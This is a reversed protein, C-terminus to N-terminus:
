FDGRAVQFVELGLRRGHDVVQQRDDFLAILRYRKVLDRWLEEKVVFDPRLDGQPRMLLEDFPVNNNSLWERSITECVADRGSCVIISYGATKLALACQRVCDRIVDEGVRAWDYPNRGNVIEALTGDFDFVYAPPLGHDITLKPSTVPNRDYFKFFRHLIRNRAAQDRIVEEGVSKERKSDRQIATEVDIDIIQFSIHYNVFRKLFANILKGSLNTDDVITTKGRDLHGQILEYEMRTVEGERRNLDPHIYYSRDNHGWTMLRISDRSVIAADHHDKVYNRAWTSKGSGSIGSLLILRGLQPVHEKKTSTATKPKAQMQSNTAMPKIMNCILEHIPRNDKLAFLISKDPRDIIAQAFEKRTPFEKLAKFAETASDMAADFKTKLDTWTQRLWEHWEDPVNEVFESIDKGTKFWSWVGLTSLNTVIRHLSVYNEFKIKCRSGNSFRVVFGEANEWDLAKVDNYDLGDYIKVISFGCSKVADVEFSEEGSPLFSALYVLEERDGYNVVIRNEPYIIEFIYSKSTDLNETSYKDELMQQAKMAQDSAFSGRSAFRWAGAYYFLIGLSGDLKEQIVFDPTPIHRGEEINHFKNFSRAIINGDTDTILGRCASTIEDWFNKLYQTKETYNHILLPLTPHKQSRILGRRKYDNLTDINMISSM